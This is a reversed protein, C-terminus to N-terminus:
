ELCGHCSDSKGAPGAKQEPRRQLALNGRDADVRMAAFPGEAM